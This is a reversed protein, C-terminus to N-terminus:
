LNGGFLKEEESDEEKNETPKKPISRLASAVTMLNEKEIDLMMKRKNQIQKDLAIIQGQLSTRMKLYDLTPITPEKTDQTKYENELEEISKYFTERKELFDLCEANLMAYRNMSGAFLDDNKEIKRLLNRIRLFEEHAKPNEKVEQFETLPVKTLLAEEQSKRYELEEKTMHSNGEEILQIYTKSPRAM